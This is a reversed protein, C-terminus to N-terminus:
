SDLINKELTYVTYNIFVSLVYAADSNYFKNVQLKKGELTFTYTALFFCRPLDLWSLVPPTHKTTTAIFM